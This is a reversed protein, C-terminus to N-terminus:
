VIDRKQFEWMGLFLLVAGGIMGGLVPRNHAVDEFPISYLIAVHPFFSLMESQALFMVCISLAVGIAIPIMVNKFRSSLWHQFGVIGLVGLAQYGAYRGYLLLNFPEPFHLVKGVVFLGVNLVFIAFYTFLLIVLWKAVYVKWRKVPLSLLHKWGNESFERYHVIAALLTIGMPCFTAWMYMMEQILVGWSDLGAKQGRGMLYDYRFGVDLLMMVAVMLPAGIALWWIIGKKQKYLEAKVLILASM